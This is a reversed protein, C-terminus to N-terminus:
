RSSQCHILIIETSRLALVLTSGGHLVSVVTHIKQENTQNIEYKM